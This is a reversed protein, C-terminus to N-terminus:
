AQALNPEFLELLVPLKKRARRATLTKLLLLRVLKQKAIYLAQLVPYQALYSMLNAQQDHQLRWVKM